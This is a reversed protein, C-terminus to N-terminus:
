ADKETSEETNESSQVTLHETYEAGLHTLLSKETSPGIGNVERFSDGRNYIAFVAEMETIGAEFLPHRGPLSEPLPNQDASEEAAQEQAEAQQQRM